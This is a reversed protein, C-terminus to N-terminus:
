VTVTRCGLLRNAGGASVTIGYLCVEHQGPSTAVTGAFGHASGGDPYVRAVDSRSGAAGLARAARGDVYVHVSTSTTGAESDIVWGAVSVGGTVPTVADVAGLVGVPLGVARCGILTNSGATGAVNIGYVCVQHQGGRTPVAADFGHAPGAGAFTAAVDARSGTASVALVPRGDLHTHAGVSTAPADRDLAWGSVRVTRLGSPAVVDLSGIPGLRSTVTRCGLTTNGSGGGVNIAYLCVSHNGDPVSVDVSYGHAQGVGPHAKAVDPRAASAVWAGVARGDVYAHVQLSRTPADRDLAWGSLRFVGPSAETVTDLYGIPIRSTGPAPVTGGPFLRQVTRTLTEGGYAYSLGSGYQALVAVAYRNTPGLVGTTHLRRLGEQCCMWGQKVGRVQGPLADPIGAFQYFGDAGTPTAERMLRVLYERDASNLGGSLMGDYFKVVDHATIQFMGWYSPTPPPGIESLGYKRAVDTVIQLGGYRSYLSSMAADDSRRIMSELLAADGAPLRMGRAQRDLLNEAVFVKVISASRVRTHAHGNEMWQGTERDLVAIGVTGRGAAFADASDLQTRLDFAAAPAASVIGAVMLASFLLSVVRGRATLRM